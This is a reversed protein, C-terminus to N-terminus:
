VQYPKDNIVRCELGLESVIRNKVEELYNRSPYNHYMNDIGSDDSHGSELFYPVAPSVNRRDVASYYSLLDGDIYVILEDNNVEINIANPLQYTREYITPTYSDYIVSQIVEKFIQRVKNSLISIQEQLIQQMQFDIDDM